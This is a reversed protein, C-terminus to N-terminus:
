TKGILEAAAEGSMVAGELTAPYPHATYDGAIVLGRLATANAPRQLKPTCAFTARKECLVQTHLAIPMTPFYHKLVTVARRGFIRRGSDDPASDSAVLSLLTTKSPAPQTKRSTTGEGWGEGALPLPPKAQEAASAPSPTSQSRDFLWWGGPMAPDPLLTMNAPPQWRTALEMYVTTIPRWALADIQARTAAAAPLPKLLDSTVWPPTALVVADFVQGDVAFGHEAQAINRVPQRLHIQVGKNILWQEAPAPLLGSLGAKPLLYDSASSGGTLTAALVRHYVVADAEHPATNLAAVALPEWMLDILKKPQQLQALWQVVTTGPTPPAQVLARTLRLLAIKEDMSLARSGMIPLALKLPGWGRKGKFLAGNSLTIHLPERALVDAERVGLTKLLALTRQYAGIMIHQGNDVTWETSEPKWALSRARGGLQPASEFLTIRKGQEFLRVAATLGAWGGGIIAVHTM